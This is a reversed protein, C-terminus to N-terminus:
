NMKSKILFAQGTTLSITTENKDAFFSDWAKKAGPCTNFGYDDCLLIGGSVLRPYFFRISELTPEFLDVDIHVFCFSRDAVEHFKEPIWGPHYKVFPFQVLNKEVVEQSIQLAGATWHSGDVAIPKSLGSFSDFVHHQKAQGVIRDCILLSSSGEYVGCEATDGSLKSTLQMLQDLTYKRDFSRPLDRTLCPSYRTLFKQDELYIRGFDSLKLTPYIKKGILELLEYRALEQRKFIIRYILLFFIYLNRM